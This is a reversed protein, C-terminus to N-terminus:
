RHRARRRKRIRRRAQRLMTMLARSDCRLARALARVANSRDVRRKTVPWLTIAARVVDPDLKAEPMAEGLVAQVYGLRDDIPGPMLASQDLVRVLLERRVATSYPANGYDILAIRTREIRARAVARWRPDSLSLREQFLMVILGDVRALERDGRYNPFDDPARFRERVPATLPSVAASTEAGHAVVTSATRQRMALVKGRDYLRYGSIPHRRAVLQGSRDWRRLTSASVGLTKAAETITLAESLDESRRRRV